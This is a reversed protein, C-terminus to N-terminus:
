KDNERRDPWAYRITQCCQPRHSLRVIANTSFICNLSFQFEIVGTIFLAAYLQWLTVTHKSIYLLSYGDRYKCSEEVIIHTQHLADHSDPCCKLLMTLQADILSEM